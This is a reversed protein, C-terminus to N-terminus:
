KRPDLSSQIVTAFRSLDNGIATAEEHPLLGRGFRVLNFATAIRFPLDELGASSLQPLFAVRAAEANERATASESISLGGRECLDCFQSYFRIVSRVHTRNTLFRDRFAHFLRLGAGAHLTRLALGTLTILLIWAAASSLTLRGSSPALLATFFERIFPWIGQRRIREFTNRLAQLVPEFIARQREASMSNVSGRWFDSIVAQFGSLLSREAVTRRSDIRAALPTPDFAVWRGGIWAEGWAHAHRELVEYHQKEQNWECGSYGTVLRAPIGMAQLLLVAASAFYECHGARSEFLFHEVPDKDFPVTPQDLTYRFGNEPNLWALTKRLRDVESAMHTRPRSLQRALEYLRPLRNSMEGMRYFRAAQENLQAFRLQQVSAPLRPDIDWFPSAAEPQLLLSPCEVIVTMPGAPATGSGPGSWTLMNGLSRQNITRGEPPTIRAIPHPALVVRSQPNQATLTIEHFAAMQPFPRNMDPIDFQPSTSIWRGRDYAAFVLGRLQFEDLKLSKQLAEVPEPALEPLSRIQFTFALRNSQLLSGTQGLQVSDSFGTSSNGAGGASAANALGIGGSVWVRPFVTFVLLGVVISIFWSGLVSLGFRWGTWFDAPDRDLGNRVIVGGTGRNQPTISSSKPALGLFGRLFKLARRRWPARVRQEVAGAAAVTATQQNHWLATRYLSFVSLTWIMLLSMLFLATGFGVSATLVGATTVQLVSLAALWWYQRPAKQMGLVIWTLFVLFDTGATLRELNSDSFNNFAAVLAALGLLNAALTSLLKRGRHDVYFLTAAAVLPSFAAPFIRSLSAALILGAFGTVLGISILFTTQLRRDAPSLATTKM